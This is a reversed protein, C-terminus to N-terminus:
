EKNGKKQAATWRKHSQSAAQPTVGLAEGVHAWETSSSYSKVDRSCEDVLRAVLDNAAARFAAAQALQKLVRRSKLDKEFTGLQAVLLAYEHSDTLNPTIDMFM